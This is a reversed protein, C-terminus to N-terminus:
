KENNYTFNPYNFIINLIDLPYENNNNILQFQVEKRGYADQLNKFNNSIDDFSINHDKMVSDGEVISSIKNKVFEEGGLYSWHWGGNYIPIFNWRNDRLIQPSNSQLQNFSCVITGAWVKDKPGVSKNNIYYYYLNQIFVMPQNLVLPLNHLNPIEDLDGILIIDYGSCEQLGYLLANRQQNELLWRSPHISTLPDIISFDVDKIENSFDVPIYTIKDIWKNFDTINEHFTYSKEIGRHTYNAECIVFKDVLPYLIDLRLKLLDLEDRLTFCDYIM